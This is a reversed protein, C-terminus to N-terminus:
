GRILSCSIKSYSIDLPKIIPPASIFLLQPKRTNTLVFSQIRHQTINTYLSISKARLFIIKCLINNM